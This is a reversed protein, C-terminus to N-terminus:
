RRTMRQNVPLQVQGPGPRSIRGPVSCRADRPVRHERGLRRQGPPHDAARQIRSGRGGPDGAISYVAGARSQASVQFAALDTVHQRYSGAMPHTDGRTRALGAHDGGPQGASRPLAIGRALACLALLRCLSRQWGYRPMIGSGNRHGMMHASIHPSRSSM